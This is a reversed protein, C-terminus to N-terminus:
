FLCQTSFSNEQHCKLVTLPLGIIVSPSFFSVWRGKEVKRDKGMQINLTDSLVKIPTKGSAHSPPCLVPYLTAASLVLYRVPSLYTPSLPASFWSFLCDPLCSVMCVCSHLYRLSLACKLILFVMLILWWRMEGGYCDDMSTSCKIFVCQSYRCWIKGQLDSSGDCAQLVAWFGVSCLSLLLVVKLIAWHSCEWAESTCFLRFWCSVRQDAKFGMQHPSDTWSVLSSLGLCVRCAACLTSLPLPGLVLEKLRHNM